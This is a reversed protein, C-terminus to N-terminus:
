DKKRKALSIALLSMVFTFAGSQSAMEGTKGVQGQKNTALVYFSATGKKVDGLRLFTSTLTHKGQKLKNLLSPKLSIITSGKRVTYLEPSLKVGDLYVALLNDPSAAFRFDIPENSGVVYYDQKKDLLRVESLYERENKEENSPVYPVIIKDSDSPTPAPKVPKAVVKVMVNIKTKSDDIYTANAVASEAVTSINHTDIPTYQHAGNEKGLIKIEKVKDVKLNEFKVAQDKLNLTALNSDQVVELVKGAQLAPFAQKAPITLTLQYEKVATEGTKQVKVTVAQNTIESTPLSDNPFICTGLSDGTATTSIMKGTAYVIVIATGTPYTNGTEDKIALVFDGSLKRELNTVTISASPAPAPTSNQEWKAYLVIDQKIETDFNFADQKYNNGEKEFWGKFTFGDRTPATPATIKQGYDVQEIADETKTDEYKFTVTHNEAEWTAKLTLDENIPTNAFDFSNTDTDSNIYWGTFTHGEKKPDTPQPLKAGHEVEVASMPQGGDTDFTVTHKSTVKPETYSVEIDNTDKVNLWVNKNAEITINKTQVTNDSNKYSIIIGTM